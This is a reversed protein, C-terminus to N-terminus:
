HNEKHKLGVYDRDLKRLRYGGAALALQSIDGSLGMEPLLEELLAENEEYHPLPNWFEPIISSLIPPLETEQTGLLIVYKHTDAIAFALNILQSRLFQATIKSQMDSDSEPLFSHLDELIFCCDESYDAVIAIVDLPSNVKANLENHFATLTTNETPTILPEVPEGIPSRTSPNSESELEHRIAISLFSGQGLNWLYCPIHRSMQINLCISEIIRMREPLQCQISILNKGSEISYNLEKLLSKAYNM